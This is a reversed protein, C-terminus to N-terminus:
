REEDTFSIQPLPGTHDRVVFTQAESDTGPAAPGSDPTEAPDDVVVADEIGPDDPTAVDDVQPGQPGDTQPGTEEEVPEAPEAVAGRRRRGVYPSQARIPGTDPGDKESEAGRNWPPGGLGPAPTQSGPTQPGGQGSPAPVPEASTPWVGSPAQAPFSGTVSKIYDNADGTDPSEEEARPAVAGPSVLSGLGGASPQPGTDAPAGDATQRETAAKPPEVGHRSRAVFM